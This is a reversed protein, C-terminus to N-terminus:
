IWAVLSKAKELSFAVGEVKGIAVPIHLLNPHDKATDLVRGLEGDYKGASSLLLARKSPLYVIELEHGSKKFAQKLVEAMARQYPVHQIASFVYTGANARHGTMLTFLSFLFLLTVNRIM